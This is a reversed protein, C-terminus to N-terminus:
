QVVDMKDFATVPFGLFLIVAEPVPDDEKGSPIELPLLGRQPM